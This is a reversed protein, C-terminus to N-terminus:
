LVLKKPPTPEFGVATMVKQILEFLYPNSIQGKGIKETIINLTDLDFALSVNFLLLPVSIIEM